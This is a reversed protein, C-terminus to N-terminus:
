EWYRGSEVDMYESYIHMYRQLINPDRNPHQPCVPDMFNYMANCM